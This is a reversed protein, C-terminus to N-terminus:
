PPPPPKIKKPIWQGSSDKQFTQIEFDVGNTLEVFRFLYDRSDTGKVFINKVYGDQRTPYRDEVLNCRCGYYIDVYSEANYNWEYDYRPAFEEGNFEINSLKFLNQEQVVEIFGYYYSFRTVKHTDAPEELIELETFFRTAFLQNRDKALRIIKILHIRSIGQLYNEIDENSIKRQLAPTFFGKRAFPILQNLEYQKPDRLVSFFNIICREPSDNLNPPLETEEFLTDRLVTTNLIALCSPRTFREMAQKEGGKM